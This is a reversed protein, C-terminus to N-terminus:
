RTAWLFWFVSGTVVLGVASLVFSLLERSIRPRENRALYELAKLNRRRLESWLEAYRVSDRFVPDDIEDNAM